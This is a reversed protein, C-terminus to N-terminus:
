RRRLRRLRLGGRDCRESELPPDDPREVITLTRGDPLLDLEKRRLRSVRRRHAAMDETALATPIVLMALRLRGVYKSRLAKAPDSRWDLSPRHVNFAEWPSLKTSM